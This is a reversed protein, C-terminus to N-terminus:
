LSAPFPVCDNPKTRPAMVPVFLTQAGPPRALRALTAATEFDDAELIFKVDLKDKPYDLRALGALLSPVAAAERYLPVLITYVPLLEDAAPMDPPAPLPPPSTSFLFT